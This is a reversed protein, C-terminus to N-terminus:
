RPRKTILPPPLKNCGPEHGGIKSYNQQAKLHKKKKIVPDENYWAPIWQIILFLVKEQPFDRLAFLYLTRGM